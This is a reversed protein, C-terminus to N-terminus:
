KRRRKARLVRLEGQETSTNGALDTATVQWAHVGRESRPVKWTYTRNGYGVVVSHSFVLKSGYAVRMTVRSIKSVRFRLLSDTGARVRESVLELEPPESLYETLNTEANCYVSRETRDCLGRLFDRLLRHYSLDSERSAEGRSYLSWAGTDYRPVEQRAAADGDAFLQKARDDNAIGGFDKLGNLAQIFGNLVFLKPRYSYILYHAGDPTKQRVGAPPPTEFIKLGLRAVPFVEEQRRLRVAARALAQLATGQSLASTWPPAGGAFTYDYEWALGGAREAPLTLLEDLLVALRADFTKGQWLGNLKGFNALPHFQIGQGPVYQWVVESGSFSVRQGSSLLPGTSWWQRNRRIGLWLAELRSVTLAGRAAIGEVQKIFGALEVKRIGPLRAAQQKASKYVERREAYEEPTIAEAKRMRKLESIVTRRRAAVTARPPSVQLLAPPIQDAAPLGPDHRETV